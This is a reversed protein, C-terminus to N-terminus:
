GAKSTDFSRMMGSLILPGLLTVTDVTLRLCILPILETGAIGALKWFLRSSSAGSKTSLTDVAEKCCKPHISVPLPPLDGLQLSGTRVGRDLVPSFWTFGLRCFLSPDRLCGSYEEININTHIEEEDVPSQPELLTEELSKSQQM